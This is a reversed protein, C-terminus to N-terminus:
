IFRGAMGRSRPSIGCGDTRQAHQTQTVLRVGSVLLAGRADCAGLCPQVAPWGRPPGRDRGHHSAHHEVSAALMCHARTVRRLARSASDRMSVTHKGRGHLVMGWTMAAVTACWAPPWRYLRAQSSAITGACLLHRAHRQHGLGLVGWACIAAADAWPAPPHRAPENSNQKPRSAADARQLM